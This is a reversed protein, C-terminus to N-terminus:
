GDSDASRNIRAAVREGARVVLRRVHPEVYTQYRLEFQAIVAPWDRSGVPSGGARLERLLRRRAFFGAHALEQQRARLEAARQTADAARAEAAQRGARERHLDDTVREVQATLPRLRVLEQALRRREARERELAALLLPIDASTEETGEAAPTGSPALLGARELESHPIRWYRGHQVARLQGREIRKRLARVTSGTLKAAEQTTYVRM